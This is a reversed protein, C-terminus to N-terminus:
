NKQYKASEINMIIYTKHNGCHLRTKGNGLDLCVKQRMSISM